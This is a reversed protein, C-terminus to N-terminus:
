TINTSDKPGRLGRPAIVEITSENLRVVRFRSDGDVPLRSDAFIVTPRRGFRDTCIFSFRTWPPKVIRGPKIIVDKLAGPCFEPFEDSADACDTRGDCFASQPKCEGDRCSLYGKGCPNKIEINVPRKEGTAAVCRFLCM